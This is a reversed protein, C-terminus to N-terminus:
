KSGGYLGAEEDDAVRALFKKRHEASLDWGFAIRGTRYAARLTAGSGLLPVVCRVGPFTFTELIEVMLEQPRETPHIKKTPSTPTFDFVNSRGVRALKPEGKRCVFFPEHCSGLMTDPSATQGQSGKTWIAPIGSVKFGVERLTALVTTHWDWGYWWVCFTNNQLVRYTEGALDAIFQPYETAAIEQYTGLKSTDLSRSKRVDINVAYPPDVEAFFYSGDVLKGMGEFVDGVKYNSEAIKVGKLAKAKANNILSETILREEINKYAKWAEKATDFKKLEPFAEAANALEIRQYVSSRGQRTEEAQVDVSYSPDNASRLDYLAKEAAAREQWTFDVRFINEYLEIEIADIRDTTTRRICPIELLGAEISAAYRRGGALLNYKQDLTIPQIVGKAKISNIFEEDLNVNERFRPGVKVKKLPVLEVTMGAM